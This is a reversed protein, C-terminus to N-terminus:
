VSMWSGKMEYDKAAERAADVIDSDYGMIELLKIANRSNAKGECLRYPFSIDNEKIIEEFHYNTYIDGVISCLELDHTAALIMAGSEHLSKLIAYSAAIRETTNTGRLVEDVFGIVQRGETKATDIIRKISKIEAMYYSDGGVISDKLSLSSIIRYFPANYNRACVTHVSQALIANVAVTKLFTSKGSANSGTLLIGRGIELSNAVPKELLPHYADSLNMTLANEELEPICYDKLMKRYHGVSICCDFRGIISNIGDIAEYNDNVSNIMSKFKIIDIHTFMRIYGLIVGLPDSGLSKIAVSSMRTLSKLSSDYNKLLSIDEDLADCKVNEIKECLHICKIIYDFCVIYPEITNKRKFYTLISAMLVCVIFAAGALGNIFCLAIAPLYLIDILIDTRLNINQIEDLKDLYYYLSHKKTRGANHLMMQVDLRLNEDSDFAKVTREFSDFNSSDMAPNKLLYYLYEDGAQSECFNMKKYILWMDLDNWTIDDIVFGTRHKAYYGKVANLDDSSYLRSNKTGYNKKLNERYEALKRKENNAGTVFILVIIGVIILIATINM